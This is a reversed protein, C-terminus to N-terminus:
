FPIESLDIPKDDIDEIVVDESTTSMRDAQQEDTPQEGHDSVLDALDADASTTAGKEVLVASLSASTGKGFKNDYDFAQAIFAITAGYGLNKEDLGNLGAFKTYDNIKFAYQITKNGDKVYEKFNVKGAADAKGINNEKVWKTIAAKVSEATADITISKGFGDDVLNAFIVKMGGLKIKPDPKNSM